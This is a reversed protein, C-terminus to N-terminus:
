MPNVAKVGTLHLLAYLLMSAHGISLVFRDRNPWIPDNPDFRLFGQWLTYAVPAMAMPTGPHGSDAVQVADMALTRITNICLQDISTKQAMTVERGIVTKKNLSGHHISEREAAARDIFWHLQGNSPNVMQVPFEPQKKKSNLVKSIINTKAPGTAVFIVNCAHNILPLTMTIRVPPPKPANLIPVVWRRAEKLAPHGPFLSATHGDEGVGLLILDFRPIQKSEVQFIKELAFEYARATEDPSHSNDLTYIQGSPIPLNNFLLSKAVGYNSDPSSLPVWREDAWFVYWTSWDIRDRLPNSCLAPAIIELLSGGSLAVYFRGHALCAKAALHALHGSLGESLRKRDPFITVKPGSKM